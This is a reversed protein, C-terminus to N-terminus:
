RFGPVGARRFSERMEDATLEEVYIRTTNPTVHGMAEQIVQIPVLAKGLTKGRYHRFRTFSVRFGVERSIKHFEKTGLTTAPLGDWLSDGPGKAHIWAQLPRTPSFADGPLPIERKKGEKRPKRVLLVSRSADFDSVRLDAIEGRRLGTAWCIWILARRRKSIRTRSGKRYDLLVAVEADTLRKHQSRPAPPLAFHVDKFGQSLLYLNLAKCANRYAHTRGSLAQVALFGRCTAYATEPTRMAKYDLGLRRFRELRRTTEDVTAPALNGEVLAWTRFDNWM